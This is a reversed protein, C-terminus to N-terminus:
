ASARRGQRRVARQQQQDAVWRLVASSDFLVRGKFKIFPLGDPESMLRDVTRVSVRLKDALSPKDLLDDLSTM